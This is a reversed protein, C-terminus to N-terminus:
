LRAALQEAHGSLKGALESLDFLATSASAQCLLTTERAESIWALLPGSDKDLRLALTSLAAKPDQADAGELTLLTAACARLPGAAQAVALALREDPERQEIYLARLRLQLNLLEQQTRLLIAPPDLHLGAFPDTGYLVRHSRMIQSFKGAFLTTAHAIESRVLFMARLRIAAHGQRLADRLGDAAQREFRHLVVLVNVDSTPRLQAEAASGYLVVAYLASSFAQETAHVFAKLADDISAPRPRDIAM